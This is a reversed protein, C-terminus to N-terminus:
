VKEQPMEKPLWNRVKQQIKWSAENQIDQCEEYLESDEYTVNCKRNFGKSICNSQECESLFDYNSKKKVISSGVKRIEKLIKITTSEM